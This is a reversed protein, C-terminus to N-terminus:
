MEHHLVMEYVNEIYKFSDEFRYNREISLEDNINKGHQVHYLIDYARTVYEYAMTQGDGYFPMEEMNISDDCWKRFIPNENYWKDALPNAFLHCYEHIVSTGCEHVLCYVIKNNVMCAYNGSSLSYICRLNAPDIYKRFWELDIKGYYEDFFKKASEEYLKLHSNFFCAYNTDEYFLNFLGLFEHAYKENWKSVFLSNIDEIFIFRNDKKEIHVAFQLIKDYHLVYDHEKAYKVADHNAFPAFTDAVEKHYDTKLDSFEPRGALRCILSGLEFGENVM